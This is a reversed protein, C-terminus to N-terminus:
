IEEMFIRMLCIAVIEFYYRERKFPPKVKIRWVYHYKLEIAKDMQTIQGVWKHRGSIGASYPDGHILSVEKIDKGTKIQIMLEDKNIPYCDQMTHSIAEILM